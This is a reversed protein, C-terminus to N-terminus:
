GAAEAGGAQPAPSLADIIGHLQKSVAGGLAGALARVAAIAGDAGGQRYARDMDALGQGCARHLFADLESADQGFFVETVKRDGAAQALMTVLLNPFYIARFNARVAEAGLAPMKLVESEEFGRIQLAYRCFGEEFVGPLGRVAAHLHEHMSTPLERGSGSRVTILSSDAGTKITHGLVEGFPDESIRIFPLFALPAKLAKDLVGAHDPFSDLLLARSQAAISFLREGDEIFAVSGEAARRAMGSYFANKFVRFKLINGLIEDDSPAPKTIGVVFDYYAAEYHGYLARLGEPLPARHMMGKWGREKLAQLRDGGPCVAFPPKKAM